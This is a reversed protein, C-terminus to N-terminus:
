AAAVAVQFAEAETFAVYVIVIEFWVMENVSM